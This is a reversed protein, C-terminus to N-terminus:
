RKLHYAFTRPWRRQENAGTWLKLGHRETGARGEAPRQTGRSVPEPLGTVHLDHVAANRKSIGPPQGREGGYLGGLEGWGSTM